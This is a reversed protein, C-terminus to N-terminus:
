RQRLQHVEHLALVVVHRARQVVVEGAQYGAPRDAGLIRHPRGVVPDLQLVHQDLHSSVRAWATGTISSTEKWRSAASRTSCRSPAVRLATVSATGSAIMATSAVAHRRKTLPANSRQYPLGRVSIRPRASLSTTPSSSYMRM